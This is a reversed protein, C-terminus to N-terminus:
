DGLRQLRRRADYETRAARVEARPSVEPVGVDWWHGGAQTSPRPDTDIVIVTTRDAQRATAMATELEAIGAAKIAVAGLAAAQAAFDLLPITTHRADILLNNFGVGGTGRQLRDICGFGGNDLLVVILKLGLMVSTAIDSNMMLWSGDGLLVVVEREPAALKVGVGGAIEYGMCSYGYELHYGGPRSAQWLKHMEGPVGGAAAVVIADPPIARQVAGIVQADSPRESNGAATVARVSERWGGM